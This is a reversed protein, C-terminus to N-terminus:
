LEIAQVLQDVKASFKSLLILYICRNLLITYNRCNNGISKAVRPAVPPGATALCFIPPAVVILNRNRLVM